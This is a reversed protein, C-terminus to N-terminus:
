KGFMVRENSFLRVIWLVIVVSYLLNSISCLAVLAPDGQYAFIGTMAQVSNYIPVCYLAKGTAASGDGGMTSFAVLMVLIMLPSVMSTAEKTTKAFASILSVLSIMLLATTVIVAFLMGYDGAAYGTFRLSQAGEAGMLKPLSASVAAFTLGGSLVAIVSFALIKGIVIEWRHIPTVLMTAMTGREKEGAISDPAFSLCGTFLFILLLMPLLQSFIQGTVDKESSLDGTIGRDVDFKNSMSSEYGDLAAVIKSYLASGPTSVSRYYLEVNPAAKGFIADYSEVQTSFDAPFVLLLADENEGLAAHYSETDADTGRVLTCDLSALPQELAAPLNVVYLTAQKQGKEAQEAFGPILYSYVVYLILAPFILSFILGKDHFFRYFEKGAITSVRNKKM